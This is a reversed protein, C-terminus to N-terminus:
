NASLRQIDSARGSGARLARLRFVETEPFEEREARQHNARRPANPALIESPPQKTGNRREGTGGSGYIGRM